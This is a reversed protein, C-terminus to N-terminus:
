PRTERPPLPFTETVSPTTAPPKTQDHFVDPVCGEGKLSIMKVAAPLIIPFARSTVFQSTTFSHTVSIARPHFM